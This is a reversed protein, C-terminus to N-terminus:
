VEGTENHLSVNLYKEKIAYIGAECEEVSRIMGRRVGMKMNDIYQLIGEKHSNLKKEILKVDEANRPKHHRGLSNYVGYGHYKCIQQRCYLNPGM